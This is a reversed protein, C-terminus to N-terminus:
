DPRNSPGVVPGGFRVLLCVLLLFFQVELSIRYFRRTEDFVLRVTGSATSSGSPSNELPFDAPSLSLPLFPRLILPSISSVVCACGLFGQKVFGEDAAEAAKSKAPSWFFFMEVRIEFLWTPGRGHDLAIHNIRRTFTGM